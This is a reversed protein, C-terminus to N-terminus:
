LNYKKRYKRITAESVNYRQGIQENTEGNYLYKKINEIEKEWDYFRKHKASCSPCYKAKKSKLIRGCDICYNKNTNINANGCYNETQSHCNPCLIQLNSLENNTNDGDIHHLQCVLKKGLWESCGCIECKNEKLGVELLKLKLKCAKITTGKKLYEEVSKKQTKGKNKSVFTFHATSINFEKIKNKLTDANRGRVPIGLDRLTDNYCTNEAVAKRVKEIDWNYIKM